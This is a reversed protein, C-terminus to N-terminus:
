LFCRLLIIHNYAGLIMSYQEYEVGGRVLCWRAAGRSSEKKSYSTPIVWPDEAVGIDSYVAARRTANGKGGGRGDRPEGCQDELHEESEEEDEPNNNTASEKM